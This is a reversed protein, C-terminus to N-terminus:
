QKSRILNALEAEAQRVAESPVVGRVQVAEVMKQFITKTKEPDPDPWNRSVIAAQNFLTAVSDKPVDGLLDAKASPLGYLKSLARSGETSLLKAVLPAAIANRAKNLVSVGVLNGITQTPQRLQPVLTIGFDLQPNQKRILSYESAFGLYFVLNGRTFATRAEPLSSNWSYLENAPNTFRNFFALAEDAPAKPYGMSDSLVVNSDSQDVKIIPNGAQLILLSLIDKANAINSFLGLAIASQTVNSQADAITLNKVATQLDSWTKPPKALRGSALLDQNFYMVLPDIVIPLSLYGEQGYYLARENVFTSDYDYLSFLKYPVPAIKDAQRIAVAYPLLVLDPGKDTAIANVLDTELTRSDKGAYTLTFDGKHAKRFDNFAVDFDQESFPGWLVVGGGVGGAPKKFPSPIVGGFILIGIITAFIFVGLLILQFNTKM